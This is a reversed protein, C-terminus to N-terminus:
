AHAIIELRRRAIIATPETLFKDMAQHNWLRDIDEQNAGLEKCEFLWDLYHGPSKALGNANWVRKVFPSSDDVGGHPKYIISGNNHLYYQSEPHLTSM